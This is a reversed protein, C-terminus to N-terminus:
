RKMTHSTYVPMQKADRNDALYEAATRRITTLDTAIYGNDNAPIFM